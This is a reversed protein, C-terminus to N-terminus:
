FCWNFPATAGPSRNRAASCSLVPTPKLTM